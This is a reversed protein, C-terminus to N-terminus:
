ISSYEIFNVIGELINVFGQAGADVVGAKKLILLKDPTQALSDKAKSLSKKFLEAFDHTHHANEALHNAWDKMVTIITGPNEALMEMEGNNINIRYVDYFRKDRKNMMMLMEDPNNELDDILHVKVEEFPTLIKRNSGDIDVAYIKYNEDGAEDQAYVIRNDNAWLYGAIDRKTAETIRI